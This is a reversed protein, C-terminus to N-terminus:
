FDTTFAWGTSDVWEIVKYYKVTDGAELGSITVKKDPTANNTTSPDAWATMSMLGLVMALAIVLAMIRKFKKM